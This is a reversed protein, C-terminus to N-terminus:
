RKYVHRYFDFTNQYKAAIDPTVVSAMGLFGNALEKEDKFERLWNVCKMAHKGRGKVPVNYEVVYSEDIAQEQPWRFYSSPTLVAGIWEVAEYWAAVEDVAPGILLTTDLDRQDKVLFDGFSVAGRLPIGKRFAIGFTMALLASHYVLTKEAPGISSIAITNSLGRVSTKIGGFNGAWSQGENDGFMTMVTRLLEIVHECLEIAGDGQRQWVGKWALVDLFTVAGEEMTGKEM